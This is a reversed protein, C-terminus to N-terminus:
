FFGAVQLRVGQGDYSPNQPGLGQGNSVHMRQYSIGIFMNDGFACKLTPGARWMFNYPDGGAPFDRSYLIFSGSADLHFSFQGIRFVRLNALLGPGIGLATNESTVERYTGNAIEGESQEINGTAFTGTVSWYFSFNLKKFERLVRYATANITKINRSETDTPVFYAFGYFARASSAVEANKGQAKLDCILFLLGLISWTLFHYVRVSM